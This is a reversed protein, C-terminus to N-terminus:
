PAESATKRSSKSRASGANSDNKNKAAATKTKAAAPKRSPARTPAEESENVATGSIEQTGIAAQQLAEIAANMRAETVDETILPETAEEIISADLKMAKAAKVLATSLQGDICMDGAELVCGGVEIAPDAVLVVQRVGTELRQMNLTAADDPHLRAIVEGRDPLLQLARALADGGPDEASILERQLVTRALAFAGAVIADEVDSLAVTQRQDFMEVAQTLANVAHRVRRNADDTAQAVAAQAAALGEAYGTEFGAQHEAARAQSPNALAQTARPEFKDMVAATAASFQARGAKIITSRIQAQGTNSM